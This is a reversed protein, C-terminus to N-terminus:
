QTQQQLDITLKQLEVDDASLRILSEFRFGLKYLLKISRANDPQVIAFLTKMRLAGRAYNLTAVAAEYAYGNGEHQSLFAFGLDPHVLADRKVLGCLGIPEDNLRLSTRYLGFRNAAYSAIPGNRIYDRASNLDRVGRDGIFQIFSPQTLLNLIFPADDLTLERLVLRQTEIRPQDRDITDADIM